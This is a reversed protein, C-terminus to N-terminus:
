KGVCGIFGLLENNSGKLPIRVTNRKDAILPRKCKWIQNDEGHDKFHRHIAIEDDTFRPADSAKFENLDSTAHMYMYGRHYDDFLPKWRNAMPPNKIAKDDVKVETCWQGGRYPGGGRPYQYELRLLGRDEWWTDWAFTGTTTECELDVHFMSPVCYEGKQLKFTYTDSKSQARAWQAEFSTEYSVTMEVKAIGEIGGGATLSAGMKFGATTSYSSQVSITHAQECGNSQGCYIGPALRQLDSMVPKCTDMKPSVIDVGKSHGGSGSWEKSVFATVNDRVEQLKPTQPVEPMFLDYVKKKLEDKSMVPVDASDGVNTDDRQMSVQNLQPPGPRGMARESYDVNDVSSVIRAISAPYIAFWVVAALFRM